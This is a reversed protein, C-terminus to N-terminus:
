NKRRAKRRKAKLGEPVARGARTSTVGARTTKSPAPVAMRNSVWNVMWISVRAALTGVALLLQFAFVSLVWILKIIALTAWFLAAVLIGIWGFLAGFIAGIWLM